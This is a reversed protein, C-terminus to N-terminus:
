LGAAESHCRYQYGCGLSACEGRPLGIWDLRPSSALLAAASRVLETPFSELDVERAQRIEPEPSSEALFAIGTQIRVGEKVFRRAALAYCDLQFRYAEVGRPHRRSAKYDIVTAGGEEDEFLLDIQGKLYISPQECLRLMFPLERHVRVPKANALRAAFPTRCFGHVWSLIKRGEDTEPEIGQAWLLDALHKLLSADTGHVRSLELSELLRHAITGRQRYDGAVADHEGEDETSSELALPFELLGLHHAYLYRRPCLVYDQLHTVPFVVVQSQNPARNRVRAIAKEVEVIEQESPQLRPSSGAPVKLDDAPLQQVSSCIAPQSECTKELMEHWTGAPRRNRGSLILRDRARTMAVYLLRVYEADERRILESGLRQHRPSRTSESLEGVWPKISLGLDRDYLVRGGGRNRQAALDPLVVIPFELGKAQHITMLQVARPDSIELIDAQAESPDQDALERMRQAFGSCDGRGAGDWGDALDLVKELNALAQEGFPTGAVAVRYGMEELALRLLSRVGLRDRERRLQPYIRLFRELRQLEPDPLNLAGFSPLRQLRRLSLHGECAMGLKFLSVDSVSVWPSRLVAALALGDEATSILSLLSAMDMVEQAGYFGRGRIVRHAVGLESLAQRYVELFTFRRFLIAVDGGRAPRVAGNEGEVTPAANPSLLQAIRAAVARADQLRCQEASEAPELVLWDILPLESIPLRTAFQDDHEPRYLSEYERQEPRASMLHAFLPNWFSLLGPASRRNTKLFEVRGGEREIKSAMRGFVGVDAGRFDYISQKVDGVVCLFGPELPLTWDAASEASIRRAGGERKEALLAVIEFQLRNTDQFEDVLLAGMRAQIEARAALSDRLLNRARILLESFDLCSRKALEARYRQELEVLLARFEKEFPAVAWGGFYDLLTPHGSGNAVVWSKLEKLLEGAGNRQRALHPESEIADRLAPFRDPEFFNNLSLGDVARECRALFPGFRGASGRDSARANKVLQRVQLIAAELERASETPDSIAIQGLDCEERSKPFVLCLQDVLGTPFEGGSFGLERCLAATMPEERQLRDLVLREAVDRILEQADREELVRFAPAVGAELPNQRLIQACLSHFTGVSASGLQDGIQRWIRPTPLQHKAGLAAILSPEGRTESRALAEIRHRLRERMEAAAKDTFTVMFLQSPRLAIGGRAGALLQLCITVLSHTKGSGAGAILALNRDLSLSNTGTEDM